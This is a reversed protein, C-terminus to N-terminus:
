FIRNYFRVDHLLELMNTVTCKAGGDMQARMGDYMSYEYPDELWNVPSLNSAVVTEEEEEPVFEGTGFYTEVDVANINKDNYWRPLNPRDDLNSDLLEEDDNYVDADSGVAEFHSKVKVTNIDLNDYWEM